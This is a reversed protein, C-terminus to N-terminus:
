FVVSADKWSDADTASFVAADLVCPLVGAAEAIKRVGDSVFEYYDPDSLATATLAVPFGIGNLWKTIRSDIPM